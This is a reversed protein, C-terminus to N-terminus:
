EQTQPKVPRFWAEDIWGSGHRSLPPDVQYLIGTQSKQGTMTSTITVTQDRGNFDTIVQQGKKYKPKDM